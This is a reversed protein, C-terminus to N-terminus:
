YLHCSVHHATGQAGINRLIPVDSQCRPMAKPCRPHFTCGPPPAEPSPPDGQLVIRQTRRKPDLEPAASM